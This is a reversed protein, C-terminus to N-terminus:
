FYEKSVYWAICPLYGLNRVVLPCVRHFWPRSDGLYKSSDRWTGGGEIESTFCFLGMCHIKWDWSLSNKPTKWLLLLSLWSDIGNVLTLGSFNYGLNIDWCYREGSWVSHIYLFDMIILNSKLPFKNKEARSRKLLISTVSVM